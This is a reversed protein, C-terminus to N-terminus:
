TAGETIEQTIARWSQNMRPTHGGVIEDMIDVIRPYAPQALARLKVRWTDAPLPLDPGGHASLCQASLSSGDRLHVTVGAPRDHPPAPLDPWATTHVRERLRAIDPEGLTATTFAQAGADGKQLAAAVAHPMSFKAGLTTTPRPNVLPLALPHTQVEVREIQEIRALQPHLARLQLAAEVASHLHQCCAYIKTYGELVAWQEGLGQTLRDPQAQGGLVTAYVDYVAEPIGGLGCATWELAMLGNWAGSAAWANRIMAGEALHNRPGPGVLTVAAGLACALTRPDLRRAIGTGAAAGLAAYRGHSQMVVHRVDFSRAVRTVIEYGLVLARLMERCSLEDTQAQSMLAPLVYLGAHCPTPRFGEDLELTNAAVANCVAAELKGTCERGGRWVMAEQAPRRALMHRHFRAVEPEDRAGIMAAMDDALIAAAKTIVEAPIDRAQTACAWRALEQVSQGCRQRTGEPQM